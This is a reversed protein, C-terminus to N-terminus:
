ATENALVELEAPTLCRMGLRGVLYEFREQLLAKTFMDALKKLHKEMPRAQYRACYCLAQVIDPRSSTLYMLSGTMSLSRTQDILTGRLDAYLKPKTVMPTGINDCKDMGHKKLIELAYKAQNIFIGRPSKPDSNLNGSKSDISNIFEELMAGIWAYDLMAEKINTLEATSVTLAFMCMEPDTALQRRTQVLKSLNKCVQEQPHDKTWHYNFRHRQYFTHMNLTDINCSSSEAAEPGPPAFPNIFDYAEFLANKAQNNNNEEANVNTLPIILESTPQVNLTPQTDHQQLNDSLAFSKSVSQNGATFYEKYMPSFLLDVDQLSPDSTYTIAIAEAWFFLPLKSPSLMTQTAEVLTRNRREVVGNHKPTRAITMQHEIGEEKFYTQLTKNLFETGRGKSSPVIKTKFTSRKEKVLECSSCMKDKVYKFKPLGNVIDNKSLLNITDFNLHSLIRHWLWSHTPAAKEMFCIITPSSTEELDVDCLQGVSFLNHNLCEVYYVKKIMVNGQVLDGYGLISAFQDNGFRMTGLNNKWLIVCCSSTETMYKTCGSDIIFLIIQIINENRKSLENELRECKAIAELYDCAMGSYEDINEFSRIIACIIDKSVCEQLLLNQWDGKELSQVYELDKFM